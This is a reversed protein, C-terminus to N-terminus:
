GCITAAMLDAAFASAHPGEGVLASLARFGRHLGRGFRRVGLEDGAARVQEVQHLQLDLLRRVQDVDAAQREGPDFGRGIAPQADAQQAAIM